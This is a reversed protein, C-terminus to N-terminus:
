IYLFRARPVRNKYIQYLGRATNYGISYIFIYIYLIYIIYINIICYWDNVLTRLYICHSGPKTTCYIAEYNCIHINYIYIYIYIYIHGFIHFYCMDLLANKSIYNHFCSFFADHVKTYYHMKLYM